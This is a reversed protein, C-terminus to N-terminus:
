ATIYDDMNLYVIEEAGDYEHIRFKADVPVWEVNLWTGKIYTIDPYKTAIIKEISKVNGMLIADALEPDFVAELPAGWTHFGAGYGPSVIVAVKGDRILKNM